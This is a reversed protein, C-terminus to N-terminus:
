ATVRARLLWARHQEATYPRVPLRAFLRNHVHRWYEPAIAAPDYGAADLADVVALARKVPGPGDLRLLVEAGPTVGPVRSLIDGPRGARLVYLRWLETGYDGAEWRVYAFVQGAAFDFCRRRRDILHEAVPAGFRVWHNLRDRLFWLDVRTLPTSM